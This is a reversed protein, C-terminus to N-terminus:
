QTLGREGWKGDKGGGDMQTKVKEFEAEVATAISQMQARQNDFESKAGAVVTALESATQATLKDVM